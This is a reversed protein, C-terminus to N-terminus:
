AGIKTRALVPLLAAAVEEPREEHAFLGAGPVVHLHANPFSAIMERADAVPFFADREGWVLQVPVTIQRHIDGLAHVHRMDFSRLIRVAADRRERSTHLPRLFFEDFEGDLLSADAFAAGLVLKNRRLRPKGAVWGLGRGYGPLHRTAIFSRFRWRVRLPETDILGLARLRTDGAMAHRAILGGSDHGVMAVDDFGLLDVVRRVAAIHGDIGLPTDKSFRSSGVGVPDIVHCTLHDALYPLLCRFTAGSVPWGPIFLVDPGTGVRRYAVEGAGVDLFREPVRRFLEAAGHANLSMRGGARRQQTTRDDTAGEAQLPENTTIAAFSYDCHDSCDLSPHAVSVRFLFNELAGESQCKGIPEPPQGKTADGLVEADAVSDDNVVEGILVIEDAFDEDGNPELQLERQRGREGLRRGIM